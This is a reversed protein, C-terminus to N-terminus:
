RRAFTSSSGRLSSEATTGTVLSIASCRAAFLSSGQMAHCLVIFRAIHKRIVFHFIMIGELPYSSLPSSTSPLRWAASRDCNKHVSASELYVQDLFSIKHFRPLSFPCCNLASRDLPKVRIQHGRVQSWARSRPQSTNM